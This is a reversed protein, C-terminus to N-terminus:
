KEVYIFYQVDKYFLAKKLKFRSELLQAGLIQSERWKADPPDFAPCVVQALPKQLIFGACEDCPHKNCILTWGTLDNEANLICNIEAHIPKIPLDLSNTGSPRGNYGFCWQRANPSVLCAGVKSNESSAQAFQNALTIGMKIWKHKM